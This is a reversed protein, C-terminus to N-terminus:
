VLYSGVFSLETVYIQLNGSQKMPAAFKEAVLVALDMASAVDRGEQASYVGHLSLIVEPIYMNRLNLMEEAATMILLFTQPCSLLKSENDTVGLDSPECWHGTLIERLSTICDLKMRAVETKWQRSGVPDRRGNMDQPRDRILAKWEHYRTLAKSLTCYGVYEIAARMRAEQGLVDGDFEDDSIMEQPVLMIDPLRSGLRRAASLRGSLLLKRFLTNGLIITETQLSNDLPLWELARICKEEERSVEADIRGLGEGLSFNSLVEEFVLEVTRLLAVKTDIGHALALRLQEKRSDEEEVLVLFRAFAEVAEHAPLQSAYVAVADGQNASILIEVYAQLIAICAIEPLDVQLQRLVIVLHAVFRILHPSSGVNPLGGERVAQLQHYMDELLNGVQNTILRAQVVRLPSRAETRITHEENQFLGDLISRPELHTFDTIPFDTDLSVRGLNGLHAEVRSINMANYHVWLRDEWTSLVPLVSAVDGCLAGYMAREYVDFSPQQSLAFCMRRWLPKNTSGEAANEIGDESENDDAERREVCGRLSAARWHEGSQQALDAAGKYNGSRVKEFMIRVLDKEYQEDEEVLRRGQRVPADPDLETVIKDNETILSSRQRGKIHERTYFWGNSRLELTTMEEKGDQLWDLVIKTEAAETSTDYLRQVAAHNSMMKDEVPPSFLQKTRELYLRQVLDWTRCELLWTKKEDINSAFDHSALKEQSIKYLEALIGDEGFIELSGINRIIEACSSLESGVHYSITSAVDIAVVDSEVDRMIDSSEQDITIVQRLRSPQRLM